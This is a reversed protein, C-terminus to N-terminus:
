KVYVLEAFQQYKNVQKLTFRKLQEKQTFLPIGAGLLVPAVQIILQDVLDANLLTALLQHGGVIWINKNTDISRVFDSVDGKTPIFGEASLKDSHTFVYNKTTPYFSAPQENKALENFTRKGMITIDMKQYFSEYDTDDPSGSQYLWELDHNKDALYGDISICGYFFVSM